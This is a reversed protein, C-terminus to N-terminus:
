ETVVVNLDYNIDPAERNEDLFYSGFRNLNETKYPSLGEAIEPTIEIGEKVLDNMIMTQDHVNMFILANAVLHGYRIIKRQQDRTNEAIIGKNGFTVFQIFNNFAESVTTAHNVKRRLNPKRIYELLYASRIVKGLEQFAFYLKNKRSHRGLRRLIVSPAIRGEHISVVVRLMDDLHKTILNWDIKEDTFVAQINHYKGGPPKFINLNKWKAIRPMLKIGLLFSLGFVTLSQGHTDSHVTDPQVESKNQFFPDLIYTAEYVGCPIFRSFLAIYNDSVHYYGIGGYGGYRIHYESLLNNEYLDWKTGDASVSSTDGWYKPLIFKNYANILIEIAKQLNKETIHRRNIHEIQWRELMPLARSTQVPGLNCGYCFNSIIYSNAPNKLKTEFGSVPGFARCWNLMKQTDVLVDLINRVPLRESIKTKIDDINDIKPKAKIRSLSLNGDKDIVFEENEPYSQDLKDAQEKLKEQIFKLFPKKGLPIGVIKSYQPLKRYFDKWSILQDRFDSYKESQEVCLDASKLEKVIVSFLCVEFQRRNIKEPFQKRRKKGTVLYWWNDPIWSFDMSKKEICIWEAKATKHSIAFQIANEVSKDSSTSVFNLMSLIKFFKARSNKFLPWLFRSYNKGGYLSHNISYQVLSPDKKFIYKIGDLIKETSEPNSALEHIDKYNNIIADTTEQNEELYDKLRERGQYHIKGMKKILIECMDDIISAISFKILAAALSFRKYAATSRMRSANLTKAELALHRIKAYPVNIFPDKFDNLEQLWELQDILDNLQNLSAKGPDQRLTNWLSKTNDPKIKLIEGIKNRGQEDISKYIGKYIKKNTKSRADKAERLLTNFSPLEYCHRLSEEIGVNIIDVLDQKIQAAKSMTKNLFNITKEDVPRIKLYSRIKQLHIKKNRSLEYKKLIKVSFNYNVVQAIHKSIARPVSNTPIFYGLRQFSKLLILFCLESEKSRIFNNVYLLEDETPTYYENLEDVTINKRFQPYATDKLIPM